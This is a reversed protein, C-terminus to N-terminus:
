KTTPPVYNGTITLSLKSAAWNYVDDNTNWNNTYDEGTMVINGSSIITGNPQDDSMRISYYFEAANILNDNICYLEFISGSVNKGNYFLNIPQITKM